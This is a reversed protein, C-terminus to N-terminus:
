CRMGIEQQQGFVGLLEVRRDKSLGNVRGPISITGEEEGDWMKRMFM